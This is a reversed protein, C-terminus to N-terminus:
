VYTCVNAENVVCILMLDIIITWVQVVVVTLTNPSNILTAWVM